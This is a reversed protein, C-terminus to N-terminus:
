GGGQAHAETRKLVDRAYERARYLAERDTKGLDSPNLTLMADHAKILADRLTDIRQADDM